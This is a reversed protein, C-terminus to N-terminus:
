SPWHNLSDWIAFAERAEEVTPANCTMLLGSRGEFHALFEKAWARFGALREKPTDGLQPGYPGCQSILAFRRDFQDYHELFFEPTMQNLIAPTAPCACM